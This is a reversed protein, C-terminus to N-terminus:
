WGLSIDPGHVLFGLGGLRFEHEPHCKSLEVFEKWVFM